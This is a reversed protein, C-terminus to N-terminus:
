SAVVVKEFEDVFNIQYSDGGFGYGCFTSSSKFKGQDNIVGKSSFGKNQEYYHNAIIIGINTNTISHVYIEAFVTM